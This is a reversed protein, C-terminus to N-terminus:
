KLEPLSQFEFLAPYDPPSILLSYTLGIVFVVILLSILGNVVKHKLLLIKNPFLNKFM